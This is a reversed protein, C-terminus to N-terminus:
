KALGLREKAKKYKLYTSKFNMLAIRFGTTGDLVGLKILLTKVFIWSARLFCETSSINTRKTSIIQAGLDSYLDIKKNIEAKSQYSYHLLSNKLHRVKKFGIIAEHVSRGNFRCQNRNFLRVVYDPRWGCYRVENGLFFSKRPIAYAISPDNLNLHTIEQISLSTLREDADLILVWDTLCNDIAYQKQESFDVWPKRHLTGGTSQVIGTTRDTSGSDVVVIPGLTRASQICDSINREENYTIIAVSISHERRRDLM